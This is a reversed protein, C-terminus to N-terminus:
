KVLEVKITHTVPTVRGATADFLLRAKHMGVAEIADFSAKEEPVLPELANMKHMLEKVLLTEYDQQMKVAEEVKLFQLLM